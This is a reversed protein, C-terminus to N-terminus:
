MGKRLAIALQAKIGREAANLDLRAHTSNRDHYLASSAIHQIVEHVLFMGTNTNPVNAIDYIRTWPFERDTRTTGGIVHGDLTGYAAADGYLRGPESVVIAFPIKRLKTWSLVLDIAIELEAILAPTSACEFHVPVGKVLTWYRRWWIMRFIIAAATLIAGLALSLYGPGHEM